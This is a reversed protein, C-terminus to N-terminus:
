WAPVWCLCLRLSLICSARGLALLAFALAVEVGGCGVVVASVGVAAGIEGAGESSVFSGGLRARAEINVVRLRMCTKHVRDFGEPDVIKALSTETELALRM